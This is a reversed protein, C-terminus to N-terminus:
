AYSALAADRLRPGRVDPGRVDLGGVDPGRVDHRSPQQMGPTYLVARGRVTKAQYLAIDACRLLPAWAGNGEPLAIGASARPTISVPLDDVVVLTMPAGLRTLVAQVVEQVADPDTDPILLLFEDGALRTAVAGLPVCAAALRDAVAGLEADGVHHGWTDNVAKFGDLDILVATLARGAATETEYHHEAGARNLLGTLQDHEALWRAAALDTRLRRSRSRACIRGLLYGCVLM